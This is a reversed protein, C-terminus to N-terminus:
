HFLLSSSGCMGALQCVPILIPPIQIPEENIPVSNTAITGMSVPIGLSYGFDVGSLQEPASRGTNKDFAYYVDASGDGVGLFHNIFPGAFAEPGQKRFAIGDIMGWSAGIGLGFASSPSKREAPGSIYGGITEGSGPIYTQDKTSLYFQFRGRYDSVISFSYYLLGVTAPQGDYGDASLTIGALVSFQIQNGAPPLPPIDTNHHNNSRSKPKRQLNKLCGQDCLSSGSDGADLM